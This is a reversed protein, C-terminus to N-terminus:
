APDGSRVPSPSPAPELGLTAPGQEFVLDFPVGDEDLRDLADAVEPTSRGRQRVFDGSADLDSAVASVDQLLADLAPRVRAADIRWRAGEPSAEVVLAGAGRLQNLLVLAARGRPGAAGFRVTRLASAVFTAVHSEFPAWESAEGQSLDQALTLAIAEAAVEALAPDEAQALPFRHAAEHLVTQEVFAEPTVQQRQEDAFVAEALPLLVADAKARAVNRLVARRSPAVAGAPLDLLLPKPGAAAQGALALADSVEIRPGGDTVLTDADLRQRLSDLRSTWDDAALLVVGAHAAKRGALADDWTEAPGVIVDLTPALLAAQASDAAGYRDTLLADARLLLTRSLASDPVLAAAARLHGVAERHADAFAARYATAVLRGDERRVLTTRDTLNWEPYLDATALLDAETLDAPYLGAGPPKTGVGPVFPVDGDLRDWPGANIAALRQAAESRTAALTDLDAGALSRYPADMAEAAAILHPIARRMSDPIGDLDAELRVTAYLALRDVLASDAATQVALGDTTGAPPPEPDAACAALLALLAPFLRALM